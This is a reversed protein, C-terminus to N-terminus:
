KKITNLIQNIKDKVLLIVTHSFHKINCDNVWGKGTNENNNSGFM